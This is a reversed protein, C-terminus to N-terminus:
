HLYGLYQNVYERDEATLKARNEKLWVKAEARRDQREVPGPAEDILRVLMILETSRQGTEDLLGVIANSWSEPSDFMGNIAREHIEFHLNEMGYQRLRVVVPLFFTAFVGFVLFPATHQDILIIHYFSLLVGFVLLEVSLGLVATNAVMLVMWSALCSREFFAWLWKRIPRPYVIVKVLTKTELGSFSLV